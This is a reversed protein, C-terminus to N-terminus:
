FRGTSSHRKCYPKGSKVFFSQGELNVQCTSCNFCESHWNENLAEVWRDGPEIPFQCGYCKTQFMLAWDKPCYIAGDENHFSGTGIPQHCKSCLFCNMHFTNKLANVVEGIIARSCKGCKPAFYQEYDRECYLQGEEEVFGVNILPVRCTPNACIFHDPCWTKDLASIFPGRIAATCQNCIPIRATGVTAPLTRADGAKGVKMKRPGTPVQPSWAAGGSPAPASAVKFSPAASIAASASAGGRAWPVSPEALPAGPDIYGGGGGYAPQSPPQSYLPRSDVQQIIAPAGGRELTLELSNGADIIRQQAEKHRLQDAPTPGIRTITDGTQVGCRAALSGPTVRQITLPTGFDKGGVLRFGWSTSSDTRDLKASLKLLPM